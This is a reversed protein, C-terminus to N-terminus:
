RPETAAASDALERRVLVDHSELVDRWRRDGLTAAHETSGVIDTFLLM